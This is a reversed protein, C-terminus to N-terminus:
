DSGFKVMMGTWGWSTGVGMEEDTTVNGRDYVAAFPSTWTSSGGWWVVDKVAACGVIGLAVVSAVDSYGRMIDFTVVVNRGRAMNRIEDKALTETRQEHESVVRTRTLASIVKLTRRGDAGDFRDVFSRFQGLAKRAVEDCLGQGAFAQTIIGGLEASLDKAFAEEPSIPKKSM